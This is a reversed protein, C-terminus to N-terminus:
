QQEDWQWITLGYDSKFDPMVDGQKFHKRSNTAAPTFWYGTMPCTQSADCRLRVGAKILDIEGPIGGGADVICEVLIWVTPVEETHHGYNDIGVQADDAPWEDGAVFLQPCSGDADPLYIGTVSVQDGSKVRVKQNLQYQPWSTPLRLKYYGELYSTEVLNGPEWNGTITNQIASSRNASENMWLDFHSAEDDTLWYAPYDRIQGIQDSAPGGGSKLALLDGAKLRIYASDLGDMTARFNPIVRQGWGVDPQESMPRARYDTPLNRMQRELALELGDLMTRWADRMEKFYEISSFIDLLWIKQPLLSTAM